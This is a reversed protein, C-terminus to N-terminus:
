SMSRQRPNTVRVVLNIVVWGSYHNTVRDATSNPRLKFEPFPMSKQLHITGTHYPPVRLLRWAKIERSLNLSPFSLHFAGTRGGSNEEEFNPYFWALDYKVQM